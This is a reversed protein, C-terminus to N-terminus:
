PLRGGPQVAAAVRSPVLTNPLIRWQPAGLGPPYLSSPDWNQGDPTQTYGRLEFQDETPLAQFEHFYAGGSLEGHRLGLVREAEDLTRGGVFKYCTVFGEAWFMPSRSLATIKVPRNLPSQQWYAIAQLKQVRVHDHSM